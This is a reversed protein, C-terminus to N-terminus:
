PVVTLTWSTRGSAALARASAANQPWGHVFVPPTRSAAGAQRSAVGCTRPVPVGEPRIFPSVTVFVDPRVVQWPRTAQRLAALRLPGLGVLRAEM